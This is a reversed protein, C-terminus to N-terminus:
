EPLRPIQALVDLYWWWHAAPAQQEARWTALDAVTEIAGCFDAARQLLLRDAESLRERQEKTLGAEGEAIRSRTLLMDLQEMGSVDPFRVGVEYSAILDDYDTM